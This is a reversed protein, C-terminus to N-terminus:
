SVDHEASEDADSLHEHVSFEVIVSQPEAVPQDLKIEFRVGCCLVQAIKVEADPGNAIEAFCHPTCNFPPCFAVHATAHRQATVLDARVWGTLTEGAPARRRVLYQSVDDGIPDEGAVMAAQREPELLLSARSIAAGASSQRFWRSGCWAEELALVGWLGVLGTRSTGALSLGGGALLVILTPLGGHLAQHQLPARVQARCHYTRFLIAALGIAIASFCLAAPSLPEALAGTARRWWVLVAAAAVLALLTDAACRG